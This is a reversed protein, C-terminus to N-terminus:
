STDAPSTQNGALPTRLALRYYANAIDLLSFFRRQWIILGHKWAASYEAVCPMNRQFTQDPRYCTELQVYTASTTSRGPLKAHGRVRGLNALM